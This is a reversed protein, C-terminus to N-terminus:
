GGDTLALDVGVALVALLALLLLVLGLPHRRHEQVRSRLRHGRAPLAIGAAGAAGRVAPVPGGSRAATPDPQDEPM